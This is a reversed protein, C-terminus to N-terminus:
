AKRRGAGRARRIARPSPPRAPRGAAARLELAALAIDDIRQQGRRDRGADVVAFRDFLREAARGEDALEAVIFIIIHRAFRALEGEGLRARHVLLHQADAEIAAPLTAATSRVPSSSTLLILGSPSLVGVSPRSRLKKSSMKPLM